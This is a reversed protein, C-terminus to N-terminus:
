RTAAQDMWAKMKAVIPPVVAEYTFRQRVATRFRTCTAARLDANALYREALAEFEAPTNFSIQSIDPAEADAPQNPKAAFVQADHPSWRILPLNHAALAEYTRQHRFGSPVLQLSLRSRAYARRLEDGHDLVGVAFDALDPHREWGRGYLKFRRNTRRAWDAVWRLAQHRRGWDYMRYVFLHAAQECIEPAFTLGLEASAQHVLELAEEERLFTNEDLVTTVRAYLRELLPQVAPPQEARYRDYFAAIPEAANSVFCIDTDPEVAALEDHAFMADTVPIFAGFYRDPPYHYREIAPQRFYGCVFQFPMCRRGADPHLLNELPDQAWSLFPLNTPLGDYEHALHDIVFVFDPDHEWILKLMQLTSTRHFTTEEIMTHHTYGMQALARLTDRTSYRVFTSFRSTFALVNAPTQWRRSWYAADRDAYRAALRSELDALERSRDDGAREVTRLATQASETEARLNVLTRPLGLNPTSVLHGRLADNASPGAFLFVRPDALLDGVDELYLWAALAREDPELLYLPHSFGLFHDATREWAARILRGTKLGVILVAEIDPRAPLLEDIRHDPGAPSPWWTRLAGAQRESLLRLGATTEFLHIKRVQRALDVARDQWTPDRGALAAINADFNAQLAPWPVRGAPTTALAEHYNAIKAPPLDGQRLQVLERAPGGLGHALLTEITLRTLDPFARFQGLGVFAAPLFGNLGHGALVRQLSALVNTTRTNAPASSV